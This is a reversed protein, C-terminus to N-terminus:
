NATVSIKNPNSPMDWLWVPWVSIKGDALAPLNSVATRANGISMGAISSAFGNPDFAPEISGTGSLAFSVQGKSFNAQVASYSLNVSKFTSSMTDSAAQSLLYTELMSQDFGIAQLTAEGFVSFNSNADTSTSVILKTVQIDTAGDLIKFNNPYSSGLSGELDSQLIATTKTKANAIDAATPIPKTGTFGGTTQGTIVGYFGAEKGPDTAFGPITLKPVPGVNYAPGGQDAVIPATISSPVLSTGSAVEGPVAVNQTIRFIKGDPTEFRTTAVLDQSATDYNNYITITGQAKTSVTGAAGTAPFLQTINKTITFVQAPITNSTPDIASISKSAIFNGNYNWPTQTFDITVQAHGFFATTIYFAAGLVVIIGVVWFFGKKSSGKNEDDEDDGRDEERERAGSKVAVPRPKFFRNNGFFDQRGEEEDENDDDDREKNSGSEAPVVLKVAHHKKQSKAVPEEEDDDDAKPIIDAVPGAHVPSELGCEKALSVIAEDSSDIFVTKEAADAERKLLRFNSASKGLASGKPIALLIEEDGVALIRDIVEAIGEGKDVAIKKM